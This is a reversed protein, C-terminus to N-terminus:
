KKLIKKWEELTLKRLEIWIKTGDRKIDIINAQEFIKLFESFSKKGYKIESFGPDLQLIIEKLRSMFVIGAKEEAVRVARLFEELYPIDSESLSNIINKIEQPQNASPHDSQTFPLTEKVKIIDEYAIYRDCNNKLIAATSSEVGIIIIRKGSRRLKKMLPNFDADGTILIFTDIDHSEYILALADVVIQIDASNKNHIGLSPLDHIDYGEQALQDRLPKGADETFDAYAGM